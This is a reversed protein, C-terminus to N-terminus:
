ACAGVVVRFICAAQGADSVSYSFKVKKASRTPLNDPPESFISVIGAPCTTGANSTSSAVWL